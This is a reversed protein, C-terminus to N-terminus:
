RTCRSPRSRRASMRMRMCTWKQTAPLPLSPPPLPSKPAFHFLPTSRSRFTSRLDGRCNAFPTQPVTKPQMDCFSFVCWINEKKSSHTHVHTARYVSRHPDKERDRGQGGGGEPVGGFGNQSGQREASLAATCQLAYSQKATGQMTCLLLLKGFAARLRWSSIREANQTAFSVSISVLRTSLCWPSERTALRRQRALRPWSKSGRTPAYLAQKKSRAILNGNPQAGTIQNKLM